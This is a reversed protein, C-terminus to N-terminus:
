PATAVPSAGRPAPVTEETQVSFKRFRSYSARGEIRTNDSRLTLTERMELPMLMQLVDDFAYTVEIRGSVTPDEAIMESRLVAGSNVDVWFRGHSPMDRDYAGRVLTDNKGERFEIAWIDAAPITGAFGDVRGASVRSFKMRRLQDADLFLLALMPMNLTRRAPGINFRASEQTISELQASNPATTDTLLKMLRETRDRVPKGDVAFVDRYQMWRDASATQVFVLDSTLEAHQPVTASRTSSRVSGFATRVDQVYKEEAIVSTFDSQYQAVYASARKVVDDLAPAQARADGSWCTLAGVVVLLQVRLKM